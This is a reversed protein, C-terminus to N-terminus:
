LNHRYQVIGRIFLHHIGFLGVKHYTLHPNNNHTFPELGKDLGFGAILNPRKEGKSSIKDPWVIAIRYLWSYSVQGCIQGAMTVRMEDILRDWDFLFSPVM